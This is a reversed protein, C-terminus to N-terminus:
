SKILSRSAVSHRMRRRRRIQRAMGKVKREPLPGIRRLELSLARQRASAM